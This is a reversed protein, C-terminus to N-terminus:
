LWLQMIRLEHRVNMELTVWSVDSVVKIEYDEKVEAQLDIPLRAWFVVLIRLSKEAM